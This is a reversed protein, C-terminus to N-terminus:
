REHVREGLPERQEGRGVRDVERQEDDHQHERADSDRRDAAADRQAAEEANLKGSAPRSAEVPIDLPTTASTLATIASATPSHSPPWGASRGPGTRSVKTWSSRASRASIM